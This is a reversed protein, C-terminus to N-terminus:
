AHIFDGAAISPHGALHIEMSASYGSGDTITESANSTNVYVDTFSGSNDLHWGFSHAAITTGSLAGASSLSGLASLDIKDEGSVFNQITDRGDSGNLQGAHPGSSFYAANSDSTGNYIFHDSTGNEGILTDAGTGGIVFNTVAAGTTETDNGGKLNIYSFDYTKASLDVVDTTGTTQILTADAQAAASGSGDSVTYHVTFNTQGTSSFNIDTLNGNGDHNVTFGSTLPTSPDNNLLISM